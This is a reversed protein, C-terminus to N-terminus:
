LRLNDPHVLASCSVQRLWVLPQARRSGQRGDADISILADPGLTNCLVHGRALANAPAGLSRLLGTLVLSDRGPVFDLLTDGAELMSNYVFQNRGGGGSLRDAGPSAVFVEDAATGVLVDARATGRRRVPAHLALGVVVPDHDANRFEDAAYLSTVQTATKFNVNYDLV